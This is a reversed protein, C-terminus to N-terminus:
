SVIALSVIVLIVPYILASSMKQQIEQRSETYDALRDLVAGLHGSQEGAAVTATYMNTFVSPFTRLGSALSHGELVRSRVASMVHRVTRRESQKATMGLAEELPSGSSVLTALQRTVLALDAAKVNGARRPKLNDQSGGAENKEVQEVSLPTLASERLVQRVQRPTDAELIGTEEQGKANLAKYEFAPM